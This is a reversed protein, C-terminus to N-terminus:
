KTKEKKPSAVILKRGFFHKLWFNLDGKALHTRKKGRYGHREGPCLMFEFTKGADQMKDIFQLTAQMHANDDMTGHTVRLMGKYKDIHTFVSGNKYGEPNDKPPDMYRETYITDYLSWDFGPANAIGYQFYDAGTTLALAGRGAQGWFGDWFGM